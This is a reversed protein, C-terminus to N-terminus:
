TLNSMHGVLCFQGDIMLLEPCVITLPLFFNLCQFMIEPYKSTLPQSHTDAPLTQHNKALNCCKHHLNRIKRHHQYDKCLYPIDLLNYRKLLPHLLSILHNNVKCFLYRNMLLYHFLTNSELTDMLDIDQWLQLQTPLQHICNHTYSSDLQYLTLCM